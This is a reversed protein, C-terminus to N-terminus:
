DFPAALVDLIVPGHAVDRGRLRDVITLLGIVRRGEAVRQDLDGVHLV